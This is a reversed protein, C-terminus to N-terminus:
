FAFDLFCEQVSIVRLGSSEARGLLPPFPLALSRSWSRAEHHSLASGIVVGSLLVMLVGIGFPVGSSAGGDLFVFEVWQM